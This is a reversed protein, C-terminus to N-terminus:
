FVFAASFFCAKVVSKKQHDFKLGDDFMLGPNKVWSKLCLSMGGGGGIWNRPIQFNLRALFLLKLKRKMIKKKLQIFVLGECGDFM